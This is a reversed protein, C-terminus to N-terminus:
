KAEGYSQGVGAEAALPLTQGWSPRVVMEELIIAKAQDVHEGRIIYANEDHAQQALKYPAIRRQIRLAAAVVIVRDLAQIINELLKGGYVKKPKGAYTFVWQDDKHQLDHYHLRLGAGIEGTLSPLVIANKEFVVPGLQFSEGSGSLVPIAHHMLESWMAPIKTYKGRYTVVVKTAQEDTLEIRKGTQNESDTKLRAQFKPWWLQFGLGLVGQKGVFRETPHTSKSVPFGFVETAFNSYVDEGNAFQDVLDQQGCFWATLRAEIQAADATVVKYGDEAVLSARLRGGRTLNQVNLQWDGGLRHTHAAAYRLPMPMRGQSGQLTLNSINIFRQARTEEITTKHGFRAAVLTQVM